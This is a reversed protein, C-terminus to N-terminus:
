PKTEETTTIGRAALYAAIRQDIAAAIAGADRVLGGDAWEIRGDGLPLEPDGIVILRGAFGSTAIRQNALDRVEDALDAHCRIALHPAGELSALCETLLAELEAAPQAALLTAALKRGITAALELADHETERRAEDLGALLTGAREAIAAAAADLAQAAASAASQEGAAFGEAYGEARAQQILAARASDSLFGANDRSRTLDLDFTFKAPAASM